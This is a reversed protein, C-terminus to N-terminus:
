QRDRILMDITASVEKIPRNGIITWIDAQPYYQRVLDMEKHYRTIRKELADPKEKGALRQRVVDDSVDLHLIVPSPLKLDRVIASLNDAEAHTAPYGDLIFGKSVDLSQIRKRLLADVKNDPNSARLDDAGVVPLSYKKHIFEAQTTKGSGPPGILVIVLPKTTEQAFGASIALCIPVVFRFM